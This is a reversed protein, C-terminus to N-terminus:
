SLSFARKVWALNDHVSTYPGWLCHWSWFGPTTPDDIHDNRHRQRYRDRRTQDHHQTYDQYGAAGFSVKKARGNSWVWVDYKKRKDTSPSLQYM